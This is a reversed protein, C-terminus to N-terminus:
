GKGSGLRRGELWQSYTLWPEVDDRDQYIKAIFSEEHKRVMRKVKQINRLIAAAFEAHPGKGIIFFVKVRYAMLDDLEDRQWRIRKNHSFAIWGREAVLRLWEADPVNDLSFHQHYAEVNLGGARLAPPVIYRGLDRDTFFVPDRRGSTSSRRM